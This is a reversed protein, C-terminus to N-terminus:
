PQRLQGPPPPHRARERGRQDPAHAARAVRDGPGAGDRGAKRQGARAARGQGGFDRHDFAYVPLHALLVRSTLLASDGVFAFLAGFCVARGGHVVVAGLRVPLSVARDPRDAVVTGLDGLRPEDPVPVRVPVAARLDRRCVPLQQAPPRHARAAWPAPLCLAAGM